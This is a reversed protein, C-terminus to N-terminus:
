KREIVEKVQDKIYDHEGTIKIIAESEFVLNKFLSFYKELIPKGVINSLDYKVGNIVPSRNLYKLVADLSDGDELYERKSQYSTSNIDSPKLNFIINEGRRNSSGELPFFLEGEQNRIRSTLNGTIEKKGILIHDDGVLKTDELNNLSRLTSSKGGYMDGFLLIGMNNVEAYASHLPLTGINVLMSDIIVRLLYGIKNAEGININFRSEGIDFLFPKEKNIKIEGMSSTESNLEIYALKSKLQNSSILSKELESEALLQCLHDLIKIKM